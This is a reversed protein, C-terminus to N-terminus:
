SCTDYNVLIHPPFSLSRFSGRLNPARATMLGDETRSLLDAFRDPWITNKLSDSWLLALAVCTLKVGLPVCESKRSIIKVINYPLTGQPKPRPVQCNGPQNVLLEVPSKVTEGAFQVCKFRKVKDLPRLLFILLPSETCDTNSRSRRRSTPPSPIMPRRIPIEVESYGEHQTASPMTPKLLPAGDGGAELIYATHAETTM